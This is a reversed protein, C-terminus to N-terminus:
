SPLIRYGKTSAGSHIEELGLLTFNNKLIFALKNPTSLMAPCADKYYNKAWECIEASSFVAQPAVTKLASLFVQIKKLADEEDSSGATAGSTSNSLFSMGKLADAAAEVDATELNASFDIGKAKRYAARFYMRGGFTGYERRVATYAQDCDLDLLYPNREFIRALDVQAQNQVSLKDRAVFYERQEEISLDTFAKGLTAALYLFHYAARQNTDNRNGPIHGVVQRDFPIILPRLQAPVSGISSAALLIRVKRTDEYPISLVDDAIYRLFVKGLSILVYDASTDHVFDAVPRAGKGRATNILRWWVTQVYPEATVHQWINHEENKGASFDYPVIKEDIDTFGLGGTIIKVQSLKFQEQIKAITHFGVGRYQERPTISPSTSELMKMWHDLAQSMTLGIPLKAVEAIPPVARTNSCNTILAFSTSTTLASIHEM